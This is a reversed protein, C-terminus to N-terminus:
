HTLEPVSVRAQTGEGWGQPNPIIRMRVVMTFFKPDVLLAAVKAGAVALLAKSDADIVLGFRQLFKDTITDINSLLWNYGTM